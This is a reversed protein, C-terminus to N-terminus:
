GKMSPDILYTGPVGPNYHNYPFEGKTNARCDQPLQVRDKFLPFLTKQFCIKITGSFHLCRKLTRYIQTVLLVNGALM